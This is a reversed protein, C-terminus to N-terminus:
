ENLKRKKFSQECQDYKILGQKIKNKIGLKINMKNYDENELWLLDDMSYIDEKAFIDFIHDRKDQEPIVSHIFEILEDSVSRKRKRNEANIIKNLHESFIQKQNDLKLQIDNDKEEMKTNIFALKNNLLNKFESLKDQFKKKLQKDMKNLVNKNDSIKSNIMQFNIKLENIDTYINMGDEKPLKNNMVANVANTPIVENNSNYLQEITLKMELDFENFEMMKIPNIYQNMRFGFIETSDAVMKVMGCYRINYKIYFIDYRLMCKGIDYWGRYQYKFSMFPYNKHTLGKPWLLTTILVDGIHTRTIIAKKFANQSIRNKPISWSLISCADASQSIDQLSANRDGMYLLNRWDHKPISINNIKIQNICFESKLHLESYENNKFNTIVLPEEENMGSSSEQTTFNIIKYKLYISYNWCHEFKISCMVKNGNLPYLELFFPIRGIMISDSAYGKHKDSFIIDYLVADIEWSLSHKDLAM